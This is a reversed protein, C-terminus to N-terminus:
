SQFCKNCILRKPGPISCSIKPDPSGSKLKKEKEKRKETNSEM